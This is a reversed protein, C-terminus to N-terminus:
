HSRRLQNQSFKIEEVLGKKIIAIINFDSSSSLYIRIGSEKSFSAIELKKSNGSSDAPCFVQYFDTFPRGIFCDKNIYYFNFHKKYLNAHECIMSFKGEIINPVSNSTDFYLIQTHIVSDMYKIAKDCDPIRNSLYMSQTVISDKCCLDNTLIISRQTKCGLTLLLWSLTLFPM